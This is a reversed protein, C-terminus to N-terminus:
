FCHFLLIMYYKHIRLQAPAKPLRLRNVRANFWGCTIELKLWKPLVIRPLSPRPAAFGSGRGSIDVSLFGQFRGSGLFYPCIQNRTRTRATKRDTKKKRKKTCMAVSYLPGPHRTPSAAVLSVNHYRLSTKAVTAYILFLFFFSVRWM